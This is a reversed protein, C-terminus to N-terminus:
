QGFRPGHLLFTEETATSIRGLVVNRYPFRGFTAIIEHHQRAFDLNSQLRAKLTDPAQAVMQTFRRVCEDQLALNEAHMLPMYLFVRCVWPLSQDWEKELADTVLRQARPDGEFARSSGRFVNRTFQDLLVILALRSLHRDEWAQFGGEVAQRVPIGFAATIRADLPPSGGFWVAKMEQTPWGTQLGDGFWFHLIANPAINAPAALPPTNSSFKRSTMACM